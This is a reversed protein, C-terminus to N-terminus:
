FKSKNPNQKTDFFDSIILTTGEIRYFLMVRKNIALKRVTKAKNSPRGIYPQQKLLNVKAEVTKSFKMAFEESVNEELYNVITLFAKEARQTIKLQQVM